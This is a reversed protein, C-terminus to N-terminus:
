LKEALDRVDGSLTPEQEARLVAFVAEDEALRTLAKRIVDAKNAGFGERVLEEVYKELEPSLPVSVTSM